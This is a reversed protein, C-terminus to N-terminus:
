VEFRYGDGERTIHGGTPSAFHTGLVLTDKGGFRQMFDIRSSQAIESQVDAIDLWSPHAFQVPHHFLDGTVIARAGGSEILVSVHGPTHGPTPVLRVEPTVVHDSDVLTVLDSEIIPLISDQKADAGFPDDEDKWYSWEDRGFLYNAHPFTPVWADDVRMTNWGVHDVHLHTCLVVDVAERPAGVKILDSLFESQRMNWEPMARPKDDGICTDVLITADESRIVFTHISLPATGDKNLFHPLLWSRLPDLNEATADPLLLTLDIDQLVDVVRTVTVDGIKWTEM